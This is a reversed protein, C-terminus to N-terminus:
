MHVFGKCVRDLFFDVNMVGHGDQCFFIELEDDPNPVGKFIRLCWWEMDMKIKRVLVQEMLQSKM